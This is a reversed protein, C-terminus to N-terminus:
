YSRICRALHSSRVLLEEIDEGKLSCEWLYRATDVPWHTQGLYFRACLHSEGNLHPWWMGPAEMWKLDFLTFLKNTSPLQTLWEELADGGKPRQNSQSFGGSLDYHYDSVDYHYCNSLSLPPPSKLVSFFVQTKKNQVVLLLKKTKSVNLVWIRWVRGVSVGVWRLRRGLSLLNAENGPRGTRWNANGPRGQKKNKPKRETCYVSASSRLFFVPFTQSSRDCSHRSTSALHSPPPTRTWLVYQVEDDLM